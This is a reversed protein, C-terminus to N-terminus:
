LCRPPNIRCPLPAVFGRLTRSEVLSSTLDTLQRMVIRVGRILTGAFDEFYNHSYFEALYVWGAEIDDLKQGAYHLEEHHCCKLVCLVKMQSVFVSKSPPHQFYCMCDYLMARMFLASDIGAGGCGNM